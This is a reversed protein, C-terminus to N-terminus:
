YKDNFTWLCLKPQRTPLTSCCIRHNHKCIIISPPQAADLLHPQTLSHQPRQSSHLGSFLLNLTHSSPMLTESERHSESEINIHSHVKNSQRQINKSKIKKIFKQKKLCFGIPYIFRIPNLLDIRNLSPM